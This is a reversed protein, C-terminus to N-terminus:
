DEHIARSPARPGIEKLIDDLSWTLANRETGENWYDVLHEARTPTTLGPFPRRLLRRMLRHTWREEVDIRLVFNHAARLEDRYDYLLMTRTAKRGGPIAGGSAVGQAAAQSAIEHWRQMLQRHRVVIWEEFDEDREAIQRDHRRVEVAAVM